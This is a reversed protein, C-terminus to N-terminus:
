SGYGMRRRLEPVYRQILKEQDEVDNGRRKLEKKEKKSLKKCEMHEKKKIKERLFDKTRNVYHNIRAETKSLDLPQRNNTYLCRHPPWQFGTVMEPRVISKPPDPYDLPTTLHLAEILLTNKPLHKVHSTGFVHWYILLGPYGKYRKVVDKMTIDRGPVLFEDVDIMALWTTEHSVRRCCDLFAPGQTTFVWNGEGERDPWDIITVLGSRVYPALVKKYQDTSMNNYLYFHDVGVLRHYEIWEKLWPAENKFLSCISLTHVRAEHSKIDQKNLYPAYELSFSSLVFLGSLISEFAFLLFCRRITMMVHEKKVTFTNVKLLIAKITCKLM